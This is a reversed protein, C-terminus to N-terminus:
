FQTDEQKIKTKETKTKILKTSKKVNIFFRSIWSPPNKPFLSTTKNGYSTMISVYGGVFYVSKSSKCVMCTDNAYLTFLMNKVLRTAMADGESRKSLIPPWKWGSRGGNGGGGTECVTVVWGPVIPSFINDSVDRKRGIILYMTLISPINKQPSQFRYNHFRTRNLRASSHDPCCNPIIKWYSLMSAELLCKKQLSLSGRNAKTGISPM